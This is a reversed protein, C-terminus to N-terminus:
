WAAPDVPCKDVGSHTGIDLLELFVFFLSIVRRRLEGRDGFSWQKKSPERAEGTQGEPLLLMYVFLLACYQHVIVSLPCQLVRHLVQVLAV